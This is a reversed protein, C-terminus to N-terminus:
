CQLSLNYILRLGVYIWNSKNQSKKLTFSQRKNQKARVKEFNLEVFSDKLEYM